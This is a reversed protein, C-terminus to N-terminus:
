RFLSLLWWYNSQLLLNKIIYKNQTQSESDDSCGILTNLEHIERRLYKKVINIMIVSCSYQLFIIQRQKWKIRNHSNREVIFLPAFRHASCNYLVENLLEKKLVTM